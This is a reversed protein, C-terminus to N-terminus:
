GFLWDLLKHGCIEAALLYYYDARRRDGVVITIFYMLMRRNNVNRARASARRDVM